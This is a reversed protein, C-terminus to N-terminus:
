KSVTDVMKQLESKPVAGQIYTSGKPGVFIVTPTAYISLDNADKADSEITALYAPNKADDNLKAVDIGLDKAYKEFFPKYDTGVKDWEQQNKFVVSAFEKFKGQAISAYVMKAEDKSQAHIPITRYVYRITPNEKLLQEIEPELSSCAPCAYDAFEVITVSSTSVVSDKLLSTVGNETVPNGAKVLLEMKLIPKPIGTQGGNQASIYLGAGVVLVTIFAIVGIFKLESKM